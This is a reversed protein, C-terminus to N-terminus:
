GVYPGYGCELSRGSGRHENWLRIVQGDEKPVSSHFRPDMILIEIRPNWMSLANLSDPFGSTKPNEISISALIADTIRLNLNDNQAVRAPRLNYGTGDSYPYDFLM